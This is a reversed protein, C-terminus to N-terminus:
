EHILLPDNEPHPEPLAECAMLLADEGTDAYYGKRRGVKIFGLKKYMEQAAVNSARVELELFRMGTDSALQMLARTVTEGFGLRRKDPRVAINTIHGEDLVFWVGAYAVPVGDEKLVIYRACQNKTAETVFADRSWPVSFCAKEIAHVGDVDELTMLGMTLEPM